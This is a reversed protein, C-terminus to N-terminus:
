APNIAAPFPLGTTVQFPVRQDVYPDAKHARQREIGAQVNALFVAFATRLHTGVHLLASPSAKPAYSCSAPMRYTGTRARGACPRRQRPALAFVARSIFVDRSRDDPLLGPQDQLLVYAAALEVLIREPTVGAAHLRRVESAGKWTAGNAADQMWERLALIVQRLGPHEGNAKVLTFVERRQQELRSPRIPGALPHGYRLGPQTCQRCWPYLGSRNRRCSTLSCPLAENALRAQALKFSAM